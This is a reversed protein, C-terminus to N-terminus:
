GIVVVFGFHGAAARPARARLDEARHQRRHRRITPLLAGSARFKSMRYYGLAAHASGARFAEKVKATEGPPVKWAPSWRQVLVDAHAYDDREFWRVANRRRLSLFHRLTWAIRPTPLIGRPHPIAMTVLLRVREPQLAAAAYAAGAGFDHGVVIARQEGLAEILGAQHGQGQM